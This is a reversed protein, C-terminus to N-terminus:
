GAFTLSYSDGPLAPPKVHNIVMSLEEDRKYLKLEKPVTKLAQDVLRPPIKMLGNSTLEAGNDQFLKLPREGVIKMGFDEMLYCSAEHIQDIKKQNLVSFYINRETEIGM